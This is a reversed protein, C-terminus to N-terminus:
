TAKSALNWTWNAVICLLTQLCSRYYWYVSKVLFYIINVSNVPMKWFYKIENEITIVKLNITDYVLVTVTAVQFCQQLLIEYVVDSVENPDIPEATARTSLNM